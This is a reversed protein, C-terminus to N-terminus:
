LYLNKFYKWFVINHKILKKDIDSRYTNYLFTIDVKISRIDAINLTPNENEDYYTLSLPDALWFPGSIHNVMDDKYVYLPSSIASSTNSRGLFKFSTSTAEIIALSDPVGAGVRSLFSELGLYHDNGIKRGTILDESMQSLSIQLQTNYSIVQINFLASFMMLLIISGTIMAGLVDLISSM